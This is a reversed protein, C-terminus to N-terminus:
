PNVLQFVPGVRGVREKRHNFVEPRHWKALGSGANDSLIGLQVLVEIVTSHVARPAGDDVGIAVGLGQDMLALAYSGEAGTKALVRGSLVRMLETCIREDGAIMEPHELAAHMLRAIDGGEAAALKAYSLAINKLPLAFVPVGCGDIGIRIRGASVETMESVTELLLRQVPHSQEIYIEVPWDHYVCLSLIAAHKGACNNHVPKPAQGKERMLKATPRHSSRHAGCLLNDESLGIKSLISRIAAVQFDQGNLSGCMCALETDTFGFRDAAGSRIVPLAQLPKAASRMFVVAEPDGACKIISGGADVVVVSGYHRSEITDGRLVEVLVEAM